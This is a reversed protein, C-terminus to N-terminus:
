ASQVKKTFPIGLIQKYYNTHKSIRIGLFRHIVYEGNKSLYLNPQVILGLHLAQSTMEARDFNNEASSVGLVKIYTSIPLEIRAGDSIFHILTNREANRFIRVDSIFGHAQSQNNTNQM